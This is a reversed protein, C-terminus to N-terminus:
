WREFPLELQNAKFKKYFESLEQRQAYQRALQEPYRELITVTMLRKSKHGGYALVQTFYKEGVPGVGSACFGLDVSGHEVKGSEWAAGLISVTPITSGKPLYLGINKSSHAWEAIFSGEARENMRWSGIVTKWGGIEVFRRATAVESCQFMQSLCRVSAVSPGWDCAYGRFMPEPMLLEAAAIDCLREEIDEQTYEGVAKDSRRNRERQEFPLFFTHGIEHALTFNQRGPISRANIEILFLGNQFPYVRGDIALKVKRIDYISQQEKIAPANLYIPPQKQEGVLRRCDDKLAKVIQTFDNAGQALAYQNVALPLSSNHSKRM